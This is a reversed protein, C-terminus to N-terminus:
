TCEIILEASRFWPHNVRFQAAAGDPSRAMEATDGVHTNTEFHIRYWRRDTRESM